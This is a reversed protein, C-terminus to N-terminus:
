LAGSPRGQAEQERVLRRAPTGDEQRTRRRLLGAGQHGARGLRREGRAATRRPAFTDFEWAELGDRSLAHRGHERVLDDARSWLVFGNDLEIRVVEDAAVKLEGTM